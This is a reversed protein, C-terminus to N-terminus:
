SLGDFVTEFITQINCSALPLYTLAHIAAPLLMNTSKYICVTNHLISKLLIKFIGFYFLKWFTIEFVFLIANQFYKEFISQV